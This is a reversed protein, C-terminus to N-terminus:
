WVEVKAYVEGNSMECVREIEQALQFRHRLLIHSASKWARLKEPEHTSKNHM